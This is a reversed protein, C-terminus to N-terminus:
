CLLSVNLSNSSALVDPLVVSLLSTVLPLLHDQAAESFLSWLPVAGSDGRPWGNGAVPHPDKCSCQIQCCPGALNRFGYPSLLTQTTVLCYGLVDLM